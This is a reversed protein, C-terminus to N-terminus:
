ATASRPRGPEDGAHGDGRPAAADRRGRDVRWGDGRARGVDVDGAGPVALLWLLDLTARVAAPAASGPLVARARPAVSDFPKIVLRQSLGGARMMLGIPSRGAAGPHLQVRADEISRGRASGFCTTAARRRRLGAFAALADATREPDAYPHLRAEDWAHRALLESRRLGVRMTSGWAADEFLRDFVWRMTLVTPGSDVLRGGVELQRVKGGPATGREVV